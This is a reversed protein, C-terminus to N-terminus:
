EDPWELVPNLTRNQYEIRNPDSCQKPSWPTNVLAHGPRWVLQKCAATVAPLCLFGTALAIAAVLMTLTESAGLMSAIGTALLLFALPLLYFHLALGLLLKDDLRLEVVAGASPLGTGTISELTSLPLTVSGAHQHLLWQSCGTQRNSKVCRDCSGVRAPQLTINCGSLSTVIASEVSMQSQCFRVPMATLIGIM